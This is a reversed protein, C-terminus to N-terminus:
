GEEAVVTLITLWPPEGGRDRIVPHYGASEIVAAFEGLRALMEAKVGDWEAGNDRMTRAIYQVAIYPQRPANQHYTKWVNFGDTVEDWMVGQQGYNSRQFGARRLLRSIASATPTKTTTM